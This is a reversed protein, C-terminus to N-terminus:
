EVSRELHDAHVFGLFIKLFKVIVGNGLKKVVKTNLLTGPVV